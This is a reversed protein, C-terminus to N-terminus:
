DFLGHNEPDRKRLINFLALCKEDGPEPGRRIKELAELEGLARRKSCPASVGEKLAFRIFADDLPNMAALYEEVRVKFPSLRRPAYHNAVMQRPIEVIDTLLLLADAWPDATDSVELRFAVSTSTIKPIFGCKEFDKIRERLLQVVKDVIGAPIRKGPHYQRFYESCDKDIGEKRSLLFPEAKGQMASELFGESSEMVEHIAADLAQRASNPVWYKGRGFSFSFLKVLENVRNRLDDAEKATMKNDFLEIRFEQKVKLAGLKAESEQDFMSPPIPVSFPKLNQQVSVLSGRQYLAQLDGVIPPVKPLSDLIQPPSEEAALVRAEDLTGDENLPLDELTLAQPFLDMPSDGMLSEYAQWQIQGERNGHCPDLRPIECRARTLKSAIRWYAFAMERVQNSYAAELPIWLNLGEAPSSGLGFGPSSGISLTTGSQDEIFALNLRPTAEGLNGPTLLRIELGDPYETQMGELDVLIPRLGHTGRSPDFALILEWKTGPLKVRTSWLETFWDMFEQTPSTVMLFAYSATSLNGSFPPEISGHSNVRSSLPHWLGHTSHNGAM